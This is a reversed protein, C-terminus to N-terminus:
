TGTSGFGGGGRESPPLEDVAELRVDEVRQFVLQAIRTGRGVTVPETGLNIVAVLLEGRYDSDITAPTNPLTLGHKLALGSRPRVQAEFGAPIALALGTRVLRREMPQITFEPEASAVDYGAAGQTARAPLELGEHHPLRLVQVVPSRDTM